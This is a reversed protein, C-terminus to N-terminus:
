TSVLQKTSFFKNKWSFAAILNKKDLPLESKSKKTEELRQRTESFSATMNNAAQCGLFQSSLKPEPLGPPLM